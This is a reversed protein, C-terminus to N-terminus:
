FHIQKETPPQMKKNGCKRIKQPWEFAAYSTKINKAKLFNRQLFFNSKQHTKEAMNASNEANQGDKTFKSNKM